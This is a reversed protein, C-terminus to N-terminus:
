ARRWSLRPRWVGLVVKVAAVVLVVWLTGLESGLSTGLTAPDVEGALAKASQEAEQQMPGLVGIFGGEFILIGTAAKAWVWGANQFARTYAIALLGAVVVLGLSPFFIWTAIEGMARRILAYGALQSPPPAVYLLVLLSAMAGMLGIAGM